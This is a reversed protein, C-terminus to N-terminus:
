KNEIVNSLNTLSLKGVATCNTMAGYGSVVGIYLKGNSKSADLGDWTMAGSGTCREVVPDSTGAIKTSCAVVGGVYTSTEVTEGASSTINGVMVKFNFKGENSCMTVTGGDNIGVVGGIYTLHAEDGVGATTGNAIIGSVTNIAIIGTNKSNEVTGYNIGVLGGFYLDAAYINGKGDTTCDMITLDGANTCGTITGNNTAAINGFTTGKKEGYGNDAKRAMDVDITVNEITGDNTGCLIGSEHQTSIGEGDIGGEITLNKVTGTETIWKFMCKSKASITYNSITHGQGDFTGAFSAPRTLSTVGTFDIDATLQYVDKPGADAADNKLFDILEDKSTIQYTEGDGSTYGYKKYNEVQRLIGQMDTPSAFVEKFNTTQGEAYNAAIYEDFDIVENCFDYRLTDLQLRNGAGAYAMAATIYGSLPNPRLAASGNMIFTNKDYELSSGEIKVKGNWIKYVLKGWELVTIGKAELSALAKIIGSHSKEYTYSHSLFYFKTDESPFRAVINDIDSVLSTNDSGSETLFCVDIDELPVGALLDSGEATSAFHSLNKGDYCCDYVTVNEGHAKCLRYFMGEDTQGEDGEKVCGGAFTFANGIFLVTKGEWPQPLKGLSDLREQERKEEEIRALYDPKPYEIKNCASAIASVAVAAIIIREISKM